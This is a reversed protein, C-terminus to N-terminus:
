TTAPSGGRQDALYGLYSMHYRLNARLARVLDQDPPRPQEPRMRTFLKEGLLERTLESDLKKHSWDVLRRVEARDDQTGPFPDTVREDAPAHRALEGLYESIAYSGSLVVSDSLELM